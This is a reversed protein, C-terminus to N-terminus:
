VRGTVFLYGDEDFRGRDGTRFWDETFARANADPDNDYGMTVNPGQVVIEGTEGRPLIKGGEDMIAIKPGAPVGVSGPKRRGPPLVNSAMQHTAETMGYAEVVPCGFANELEQMTHPALPASSSHIFRLYPAEIEADRGLRALLAQHMAPVASYWSPEVEELWALFRPADFGPTCSVAAGAGLSSLVAAVLGQVHFLPMVNLCRDRPTLALATGIHRASAALNSVSLPVIRPRTTTGSTYLVLSIEPGRAPGSKGAKGPALKGVDLTFQGSPAGPRVVLEILPVGAKAAAARVPSDLGQRVIVAKPALDALWAAFQDASGAPDLPAAACGAAVAIFSAAMEPGNPVVIAVRDDRGIGAGNLAAITADVLKRLGAYDLWPRGPAGIAPAHRAGATTVDYVTQVM